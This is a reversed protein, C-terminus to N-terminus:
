MQGNKEQSKLVEDSTFEQLVLHRQNRDVELIDVVYRPEQSPIYHELFPKGLLANLFATKGCGASGFVFCHFISRKIEKKKREYLRGKKLEIGGSVDELKKEIKV